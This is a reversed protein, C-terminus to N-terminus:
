TGAASSRRLTTTGILTVAKSAMPRMQPETTRASQSAAWTAREERLRDRAKRASLAPSRPHRTSAFPGGSSWAEPCANLAIASLTTSSRAVSRSSTACRECRSRVGSVTRCSATSLSPGVAPASRIVAATPRSSCSSSEIMVVARAGRAVPAM